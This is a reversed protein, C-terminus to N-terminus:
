YSRVNRLPCCSVIELFGINMLSGQWNDKFYMYMRIHIAGLSCTPTSSVVKHLLTQWHSPVPRHNEEPVGTEEVLLVSLWSIISIDNFTANFVMIMIKVGWYVFNVQQLIDPM